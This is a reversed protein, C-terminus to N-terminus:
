SMKNRKFRRDVRVSKRATAMRDKLEQEKKRKERKRKKENAKRVAVGRLLDDERVNDVDGDDLELDFPVDDHSAVCAELVRVKEQLDYLKEAVSRPPAKKRRKKSALVHVRVLPMM